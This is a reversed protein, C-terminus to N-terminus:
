KTDFTDFTVMTEKWSHRINCEAWTIQLQQIQNWITKEPFPVCRRWGNFFGWSWKLAFTHLRKRDRSTHGIKHLYELENTQPINKQIITSKTFGLDLGLAIYTSAPVIYVAIFTSTPKPESQYSDQNAQTRIPIPRHDTMFQSPM